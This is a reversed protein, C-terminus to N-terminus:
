ALSCTRCAYMAALATSPRLQPQPQMSSQVAVLASEFIVPPAREGAWSGAQRRTLGGNQDPVPTASKYQAYRSM